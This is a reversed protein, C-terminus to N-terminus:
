DNPDEFGNLTVSTEQSKLYIAGFLSGVALTWYVGWGWSPIHLRDLLLWITVLHWITWRMPLMKNSLVKHKAM